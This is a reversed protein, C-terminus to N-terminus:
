ITFSKNGVKPGHRCLDVANRFKQVPGSELDLCGCKTCRTFQFSWGIGYIQGCRKCTFFRGYHTHHKELWEERYLAFEEDSMEDIKSM